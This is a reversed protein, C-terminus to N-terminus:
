NNKKYDEITHDKRKKFVDIKMQIVALPTRLEHAVNSSFQKQSEFADEIRSLMNNFSKTLDKIEDDAGEEKIKKSLNHESIDKIEDSLNKVGELSKKTTLYTIIGGLIIVVIMYFTSTMVINGKAVSTAQTLSKSEIVTADKLMNNKNPISPTTSAASETPSFQSISDISRVALLSTGITLIVSCLILVITNIFTVKLRLSLNFKM